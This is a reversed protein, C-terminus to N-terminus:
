DEVALYRLDLTFLAVDFSDDGMTEVSWLVSPRLPPIGRFGVEGDLYPGVTLWPTQATSSSSVTADAAHLTLPDTEGARTPTGTFDVRYSDIGRVADPATVLHLSLVGPVNIIGTSDDSCTASRLSLGGVFLTSPLVMGCYSVDGCGNATSRACPGIVTEAPVVTRVEDRWGLVRRSVRVTFPRSTARNGALDSGRVEVSYRGPALPRGSRGRAAWRLRAEHLDGTDVIAAGAVVRGHPDRVLLRGGTVGRELAFARLGVTDRVVTSRPFVVVPDHHRAGYTPDTGVGVRFRRDVEVPRQGQANGSLVRVVYPADAAPEDGRVTGDWTWVHRGADHRGLHRRLAVPKDGYPGRVEITVPGRRALTYRVRAVDKVGDGNPSFARTGSVVIAKAAASAEAPAPAPAAPAPAARDPAAAVAAAPAVLLGAALLLAGGVATRPTGARTM